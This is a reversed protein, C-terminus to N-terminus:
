DADKLAPWVIGEVRYYEEYKPYERMYDNLIRSCFALRDAKRKITFGLGADIYSQIDFKFLHLTKGDEGNRKKVPKRTYVKSVKIGQSQVLQYFADFWVDCCGFGLTMDNMGIGGSLHFNIWGESDMLGQIFALKIERDGALIYGPIKTKHSTDTEAQDVFQRQAVRLKYQQRHAGSNIGPNHKSIKYDFGIITKIADRWAEIMEIDCCKLMLMPGRRVDALANPTYNIHGDGLLVGYFYGIAYNMNM